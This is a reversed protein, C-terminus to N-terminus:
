DERRRRAAVLMGLLTLASSAPAPITVIWAERQGAPNRGEGTFTLGNDSVGTVRLTNWGDLPVGADSLVDTFFKFGKAETWVYSVLDGDLRALGVVLQADPTMCDVISSVPFEWSGLDEIKDTEDWRVLHGQGNASSTGVVLSGDQSVLKAGAGGGSTLPPLFRYGSGVRYRYALTAAKTQSLSGVVTTGDRSLGGVPSQMSTPVNLEQITGNTWLYVSQGGTLQLLITSGDGSIGRPYPFAISGTGGAIYEPATQDWRANHWAEWSVGGISLGAAMRGDASLVAARTSVDGAVPPLERMGADADWRFSKSNYYDNSTYGVVVRGDASIASANSSSTGPLFGLGQIGAFAVSGHVSGWVLSFCLSARKIRQKNQM